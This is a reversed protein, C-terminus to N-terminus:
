GRHTQSIYLWSNDEEYKTYGYYRKDSKELFLKSQSFLNGPEADSDDSSAANIQKLTSRRMLTGTSRMLCKMKLLIM